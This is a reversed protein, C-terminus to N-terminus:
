SPLYQVRSRRACNIVKFEEHLKDWIASCAMSNTMFTSLHSLATRHLSNLLLYDLVM